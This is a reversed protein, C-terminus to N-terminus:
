DLTIVDVPCVQAAKEACDQVEAPINASTPNGQAFQETIAAKGDVDMKFVDPCTEACSGCSICGNKDITVKM